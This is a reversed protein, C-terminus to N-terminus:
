AAPEEAPDQAPKEAEQKPGTEQYDARTLDVEKAVLPKILEGYQRVKVMEEKSLSKVVEPIIKAYKVGDTNKDEMLSLGIIVSSYHRGEGALRLFFKRIEKLSTPPCSVVVPLLSQPRLLFLVRMQKCAQGRGEKGEKGPASGFQSLPCDACSGGPEGIGRWGDQSSCDPPTGGGSEDYPVKWFARPDKFAIVVGYVKKELTPDGSLSPITWAVGGGAPVKLRDFDFESISVTGLNEKLTAMLDAQDHQMVAYKDLPVIDQAM